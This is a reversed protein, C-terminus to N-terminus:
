RRAARRVIPAPPEGLAGAIERDFTLRRVNGRDAPELLVIRHEHPRPEAWCGDPHSVVIPETTV